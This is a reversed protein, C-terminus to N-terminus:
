HRGRNDALGDVADCLSDWAMIFDIDHFSEVECWLKYAAKTAAIVAAERKGADSALSENGSEIASEMDARCYQDTPSGWCQTIWELAGRFVAVQGQLAVIKEEATM